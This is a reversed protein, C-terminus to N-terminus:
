QTQVVKIKRNFKESMWSEIHKIDRSTIKENSEIVLVPQIKGNKDHMDTIGAKEIEPYLKMLDDITEKEFLENVSYMKLKARAEKLQERLDDNGFGIQSNEILEEVDKHSIYDDYNAQNLQLTFGELEYDGMNNEIKEIQEDSITSGMIAVKIVKSEPNISSKVVQTNEINFEYRIFEKFNEQMLTENISQRALYASPLIILIVVIVMFFRKKLPTEPKDKDSIGELRLVLIAAMCIFICNISFLYFARAAMIWKATAICYGTTCLPPMLATAIAAGPVVTIMTNKRTNAIIAAFGGFLAILVDWITPNTRAALEGSFSEIPSLWFYITSTVISVIIQFIFKGGARKIWTLNQEAIGLGVSIIPGMLPSILMAGIVVATSNMNLGISAILIALILIYMNTGTVSAGERVRSEIVSQPAQDRKLGFVQRFMKKYDGRTKM